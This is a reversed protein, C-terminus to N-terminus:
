SRGPWHASPPMPPRLHPRTTHSRLPLAHAPRARSTGLADTLLQGARRPIRCCRPRLRHARPRMAARRQAHASTFMTCPREAHTRVGRQTVIMDLNRAAHQPAHQRLHLDHRGLAHAHAAVPRAARASAHSGCPICDSMAVVREHNCHESSWVSADGALHQRGDRKVQRAGM